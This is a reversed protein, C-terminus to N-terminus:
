RNLHASRGPVRLTDVRNRRESSRSIKRRRRLRAPDAPAPRRVRGSRRPPGARRVRGPSAPARVEEARDGLVAQEHRQGRQRELEPQEERQRHGGDRTVRDGALGVDARQAVQQGHRDCRARSSATFYAAITTNAKAAVRVTLTVPITMPSSSNPPPSM